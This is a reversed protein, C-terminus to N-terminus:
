PYRLIGLLILWYDDWATEEDFWDVEALAISKHYAAEAQATEIEFGAYRAGRDPGVFRSAQPHAHCSAANVIRFYSVGFVPAHIGIGPPLEFRETPHMYWCGEMCDILDLQAADIHLRQSNLVADDAVHM